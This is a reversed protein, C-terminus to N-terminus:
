LLMKGETENSCIIGVDEHHDCNHVGWGRHACDELQRESGTCAVDDM